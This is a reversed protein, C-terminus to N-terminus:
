KPDGSSKIPSVRDLLYCGTIGEVWIVASHGSLVDAKSRTTTILAEGDDTRVAVTTGVPYRSNFMECQHRLQAPDPPRM